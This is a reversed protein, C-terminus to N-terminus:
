SSFLHGIHEFSDLDIIERISPVSHVISKLKAVRTSWPGMEKSNHARSLEHNAIKAINSWSFHECVYRKGAAAKLRLSELNAKTAQLTKVLSNEDLSYWVPFDFLEECKNFNGTGSPFVCLSKEHCPWIECREKRSKILEASSSSLYQVTAGMDSSIVVLGNALAELPTLGFGEARSPNVYVDASEYLTSINEIYKDVLTIKACKSPEISYVRKMETDDKFIMHLSTSTHSYSLKLILEVDDHISFASCWAKLLIDVGKRPLDAGIYLFSLTDPLKLPLFSKKRERIKACDVGHPVVKIMHQMNEPFMRASFISPTWIADTKGYELDWIKPVAGFEWPIYLIFNCDGNPCTEPRTFNHPWRFRLYYDFRESQIIM